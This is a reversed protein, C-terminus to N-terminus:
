DKRKVITVDLEIGIPDGKEKIIKIKGKEDKTVRKAKGGTIIGCLDFSFNEKDEFYKVCDSAEDADIRGVHHFGKRDWDYVYVKIEGNDLIVGMKRFEQEALEYVVDNEYEEKIESTKLGDFKDLYGQKLGEKIEADIINKIKIGEDNSKDTDLVKYTGEFVVENPKYILKRGRKCCIKGQLEEFNEPLTLKFDQKEPVEEEPEEEDGDPEENEDAESTEEFVEEAATEAIEEAVEESVEEADTETMEEESVNLEKNIDEMDIGRYKISDNYYLSPNIDIYLYIFGSLIYNKGCYYVALSLVFKFRVTNLFIDYRKHSLAYFTRLIHFFSVANRATGKAPNINTSLM